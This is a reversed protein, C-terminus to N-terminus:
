VFLRGPATREFGLSVPNLFRQISLRRGFNKFDFFDPNHVLIAQHGTPKMSQKERVANADQGHFRGHMSKSHPQKPIQRGLEILM